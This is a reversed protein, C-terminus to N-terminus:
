GLFPLTIRERHKAIDSKEVQSKSIVKRYNLLRIKDERDNKKM